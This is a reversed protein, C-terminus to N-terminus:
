PTRPSQGTAQLRRALLDMRAKENDEADIWLKAVDTAVDARDKWADEAQSQAKLMADAQSKQAQVQVKAQEIQALAAVQQEQAQAQAQAAQSQAQQVQDVYQKLRERRSRSSTAMEVLVDPDVPVGSQQLQQLTSLELMRLTSNESKNELDINYNLTRMDRIPVIQTPQPQSGQPGQQPTLEIIMGNQVRYRDSSVLSQIQDDPMANVITEVVKSFLATQMEEFNGFPGSVSQRAKNYRITVGVGGQQAEAATVAVSSPIGSIENLLDVATAAREIVAANPPSVAKERVRGEVLADREVVAHGGPRRMEDTFQTEDTVADKEGITGVNTMQAIHEIKLSVAKNLEQQPDMLNRVMGYPTGTEEDMAYAYNVISFGDFPGVTDYTELIDSGIFDLAKVVEVSDETVDLPQGDLAAQMARM